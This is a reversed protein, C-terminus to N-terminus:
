FTTSVNNKKNNHALLTIKKVFLVICNINKSLFSFLFLFISCFGEINPFEFPMKLLIRASIFIIM